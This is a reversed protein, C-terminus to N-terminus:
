LLRGQVPARPAECIALLEARDQDTLHDDGAIWEGMARWFEPSEPMWLPPPSM